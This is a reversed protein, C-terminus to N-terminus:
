LALSSGDGQLSETVAIVYELYDTPFFEFPERPKHNLLNQGVIVSTESQPWHMAAPYTHPLTFMRRMAAFDFLFLYHCLAVKNKLAMSETVLLGGM